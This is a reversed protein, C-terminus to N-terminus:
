LPLRIATLTYYLKLHTFIELVTCCLVVRCLNLVFLGNLESLFPNSNLCGHTNKWLQYHQGKLYKLVGNTWEETIVKDHWPDIWSKNNSMICSYIKFQVRNWQPSGYVCVWICTGVSPCNYSYCVKLQHFSIMCFGVHVHPFCIFSCLALGQLQKSAVIDM